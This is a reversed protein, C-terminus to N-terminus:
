QSVSLLLCSQGNYTVYLGGSSSTQTVSVVVAGTGEFGACFKTDGVKPVDGDGSTGSFGLLNFGDVQKHTRANFVVTNSVSVNAHHTVRHTKQGKKGEGTTWECVVDYTADTVYSFSLGGVNAQLMANNWGFCTQVDGKGVFGTGTAPDFTVSAFASTAAILFTLAGFGLIRKM